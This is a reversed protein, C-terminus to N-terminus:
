LFFSYSLFSLCSFPGPSVGPFKPARYLLVAREFVASGLRHPCIHGCPGWSQRSWQERAGM